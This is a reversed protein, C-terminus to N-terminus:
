CADDGLARQLLIEQRQHMASRQEETGDSWGALHLLGHIAVFALELELTNGVEGAQEQVVELCVAIDGGIMASGGDSLHPFTIVDTPSPDAFYQDHLACIRASDVILVVIDGFRCNEEFEIVAAVRDLTRELNDRSDASLLDAPECVVEISRSM